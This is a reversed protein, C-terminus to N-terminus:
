ILSLFAEQHKEGDGGEALRLSSLERRIQGRNSATAQTYTKIIMDYMEKSTELDEILLKIGESITYLIAVKAKEDKLTWALEAANHTALAAEIVSDSARTVTPQVFVPKEETGFVVTSQSSYRLYQTIGSKWRYLNSKGTLRVCEDLLSKEAMKSIRQLEDFVDFGSSVKQYQIM